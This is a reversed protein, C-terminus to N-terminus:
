LQTRVTHNRVTCSLLKTANRVRGYVDAPAVM